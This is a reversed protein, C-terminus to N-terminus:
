LLAQQEAARFAIGTLDKSLNPNSLLRSFSFICKLFASTNKTCSSWFPDCHAAISSSMCWVFFSQISNFKKWCTISYCSMNEPAVVFCVKHSMKQCLIRWHEVWSLSLESKDTVDSVTIGSVNTMIQTQWVHLVTLHLHLLSFRTHQINQLHWLPFLQTCSQLFMPRCHRCGLSNWQCMARCQTRM